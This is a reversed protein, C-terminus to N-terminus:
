VTRNKPRLMSKDQNLIISNATRSSNIVKDTLNFLSSSLDLYETLQNEFEDFELAFSSGLYKYFYSQRFNAIPLRLEEFNESNIRDKLTQFVERISRKEVEVLKDIKM